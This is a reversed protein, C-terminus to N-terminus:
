EESTSKPTKTSSAKERLSFKDFSDAGMGIATIIVVADVLVDAPKIAPDIICNITMITCLFVAGMIAIVPKVSVNEREDKTLDHLWNIFKNM